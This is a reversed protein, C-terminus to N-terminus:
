RDTLDHPLTVTFTTGSNPRVAFTTAAALLTRRSEGVARLANVVPGGGGGVAGHGSVPVAVQDHADVLRVVLASCKVQLCRPCSKCVSDLGHDTDHWCLARDIDDDM